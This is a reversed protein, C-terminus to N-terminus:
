RSYRKAENSATRIWRRKLPSTRSRVSEKGDSANAAVADDLGGSGDQRDAPKDPACSTFLASIILISLLKKMNVTKPQKYSTDIKSASFHQM